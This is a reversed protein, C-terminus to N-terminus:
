LDCPHTEVVESDDRYRVLGSRRLERAANRIQEEAQKGDSDRALGLILEAITLQEPHLKAIETLVTRELEVPMSPHFVLRPVM